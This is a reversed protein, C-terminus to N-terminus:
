RRKSKPKDGKSTKKKGEKEPAPKAVAAKKKEDKKTASAKAPKTVKRDKTKSTNGTDKGLSIKKLGTKIMDIFAAITM